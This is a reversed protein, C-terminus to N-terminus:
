SRDVSDSTLSPDMVKPNVKVYSFKFGVPKKLTNVFNDYQARRRQDASIVIPIRLTVNVGEKRFNKFPNRPQHLVNNGSRPRRPLLASSPREAHAQAPEPEPEPEPKSYVEAEQPKLPPVIATVLLDKASVPSIKVSNWQVSKSPGKPCKRNKGKSPKSNNNNANDNHHKNLDTGDPWLVDKSYYLNCLPCELSTHSPVIITGLSLIAARQNKSTGGTESALAEDRKKYRFGGIAMRQVDILSPWVPRETQTTM